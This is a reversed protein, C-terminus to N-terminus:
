KRTIKKERRIPPFADTDIMLKVVTQKVPVIKGRKVRYIVAQTSINCLKAYEYLSILM